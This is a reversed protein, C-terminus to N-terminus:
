SLCSDDLHINPIAIVGPIGLLILTSVYLGGRVQYWRDIMDLYTSNLRIVCGREDSQVDNMLKVDRPLGERARQESSFRAPDDSECCYFNVM